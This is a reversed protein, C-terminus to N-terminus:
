LSLAPQPEDLLDVSGRGDVVNRNDDVGIVDVERGQLGCEPVDDGAVLRQSAHHQRADFRHLPDDGRRLRDGQNRDDVLDTGRIGCGGDIRCCTVHEPEGLFQGHPDAHDPAPVTTRHDHHQVVDGRVAPGHLRQQTGQFRGIHGARLPPVWSQGLRRQLIVVPRAGRRRGIGSAQGFPGRPPFAPQTRQRLLDGERRITRAALCGSPPRSLDARFDISSRLTSHRGQGTPGADTRKDHQVTHKRRQQVKVPCAIVDHDTGDGGTAVATCELIDDPEEHVRHDQAAIQRPIRGEFLQQSAQFEGIGVAQRM